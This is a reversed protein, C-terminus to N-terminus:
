RLAKPVYDAREDDASWFQDTGLLEHPLAMALENDIFIKTSQRGRTGAAPVEPVSVDALALGMAAAKDAGAVVMWVRTASNVLPLTMTLRHPPPKPSDVVARIGSENELAEPHGPFVSLVHGDPGMGVFALDFAPWTGDAGCLEQTFARAQLAIDGDDSSPFRHISKEPIGLPALFVERAQEDNREPDGAPVFREDGWYLDVAAWNVETAKPHAAIAALTETGVTGGTLVVSFREQRRLTKLARVIFKDAVLTTLEERSPAIVVRRESV